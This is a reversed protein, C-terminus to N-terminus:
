SKKQQPIPISALALRFGITNGNFSALNSYRNAARCNRADNNWSGGRLLRNKNTSRSSIDGRATGDNPAGNYSDVLEDLCWEWLNGHIDYLGFLNPPFSGVITTRDSTQAKPTVDNNNYNVTTPNITEGFTFPTKTGARCAYEWQSESPLTYSRGTQRSLQQCFDIAALWSVSDVPLKDDGTLRSPNNGMVAQWQAQTVLTQGFYFESIRVEHQPSENNKRDREGNPSGMLFKGAPIKVMTLDVRNGLSETFIEAKGVPKAAEKGSSDLRISAFQISSLKPPKGPESPSTATPLSPSTSNKRLQSLAVAAVVGVGGFGVWKLFNRRPYPPSAAPPPPLQTPASTSSFSLPLDPNAVAPPTLIADLAALADSANAFRSDYWRRVMKTLFAAFEASIPQKVQSLWDLELTDADVPFQSLVGGPFGTLAQIAIIGVAYIDSSYRPHGARQEEPMYGPTGIGITSPTGTVIHTKMQGIEKVAGFDILVLEGNAHKRIINDPKLDRHIIQNEHVIKLPILIEKLLSIVDSELFVRDPTIEKSLPKGDIFEQVLYYDNHEAFSAWLKPIQSTGEGLHRLSVAEKQFLRLIAPKHEEPIDDLKLYKVVVQPKDPLDDDIAVYTDGFAGSSLPKVIRYHSRLIYGPQLHHSPQPM